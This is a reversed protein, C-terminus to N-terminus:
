FSCAMQPRRRNRFGDTSTAAGRPPPTPGPRSLSRAHRNDGYHAALRPEPALRRARTDAEHAEHRPASLHAFLPLSRPGGVATIPPLAAIYPFFHKDAEWARRPSARRLGHHATPCAQRNDSGQTALHPCPRHHATPVATLRRQGRRSAPLPPSPFGRLPRSFGARRAPDHGVRHCHVLMRAAMRRRPFTARLGCGPARLGCGPARLGFRRRRAHPEAHVAPGPRPERAWPGGGM